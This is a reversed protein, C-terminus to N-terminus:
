TLLAFTSLRKLEDKHAVPLNVQLVTQAASAYKDYLLNTCTFDSTTSFAILVPNVLESPCETWASLLMSDCNAALGDTTAANPKGIVASDRLSSVMIWKYYNMTWDM